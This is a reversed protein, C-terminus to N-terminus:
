ERGARARRRPSTPPAVALTILTRRATAPAGPHGSFCRGRSRRRWGKRAEGCDILGGGSGARLMFTTPRGKSRVRDERVSWRSGDIKSADGADDLLRPGARQDAQRGAGGHDTEGHGEDVGSSEPDAKGSAPPSIRSGRGGGVESRRHSEDNMALSPCPPRKSGPAPAARGPPWRRDRRRRAPGAASGATATRWRRRRSGQQPRNFMRVLRRQDGPQEQQRFDRRQQDDQGTEAEGVGVAREGLQDSMPSPWRPGTPGWRWM